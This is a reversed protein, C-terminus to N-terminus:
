SWCAFFTVFRGTGARQAYNLCPEIFGLFRLLITRHDKEYDGRTIYQTRVSIKGVPNLYWKVFPSYRPYKIARSKSNICHLLLERYLGDAPIHQM